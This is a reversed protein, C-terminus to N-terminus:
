SIKLIKQGELKGAQYEVTDTVKKGVDAENAKGLGVQKGRNFNRVELLWDHEDPTLDDVVEGGAKIGPIILDGIQQIRPSTPCAHGSQNWSAYQRHWGVGESPTEKLFQAPIKAWVCYAILADIQAQTWVDSSKGYDETEIGPAWESASYAHYCLHSDDLYQYFKGKLTLQFQAGVGKGAAGSQWWGELDDVPGGGNTHFIRARYGPKPLRGLDLGKVYEYTALPYISV